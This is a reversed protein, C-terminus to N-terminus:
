EMQDTRTQQRDQANGTSAERATRRSRALRSDQCILPWKASCEGVYDCVEVEFSQFEFSLVKPTVRCLLSM